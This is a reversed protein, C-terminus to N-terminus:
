GSFSRYSSLAARRARYFLWATLVGLMLLVPDLSGKLEPEVGLCMLIAVGLVTLSHDRWGSLAAQVGLYAGAVVGLVGVGALFVASPQEFHFLLPATGFLFGVPVVLSWCAWGDVVESPSLPTTQLTELTQSAQESRASSFSIWMALSALTFFGGLLTEFDQHACSSVAENTMVLGFGFPSLLLVGLAVRSRGAFKRALVPNRLRWIVPIRWRGRAQLRKRGMRVFQDRRRLGWLAVVRPFLCLAAGGCFFGLPNDGLLMATAVASGAFLEYLVPLGFLAWFWRLNSWISWVQVTYSFSVAGVAVGALMLPLVLLEDHALFSVGVLVPSVIKLTLILSRRAVEDVLREVAFGTSQLEELVRRERLESWISSVRWIYWACLPIVLLVPIFFFWITLVCVLTVGAVPLIWHNEHVRLRKSILYDLM